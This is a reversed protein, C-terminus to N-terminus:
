KKKKMLNKLEKVDKKPIVLEGKHLKYIRTKKVTGGKKLGPPAGIIPNMQANNLHNHPLNLNNAVAMNHRQIDNELQTNQKKKIRNVIPYQGFFGAGAGVLSGITAFIGATDISQKLGASIGGALLASTLSTGVPIGVRLFGRFRNDQAQIRQIILQNDDPLDVNVQNQM